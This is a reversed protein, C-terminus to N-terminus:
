FFRRARDRFRAKSDASPERDYLGQEKMLRRRQAQSDIHAGLQDDYYAMGKSRSWEALGAHEARYDRAMATGCRKCHPHTAPDSIQSIPIWNESQEGCSCRFVYVM